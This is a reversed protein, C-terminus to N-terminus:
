EGHEAAHVACVIEETIHRRACIAIIVV